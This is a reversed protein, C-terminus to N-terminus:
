FSSLGSFTNAIGAFAQHLGDMINQAPLYGALTGIASIAGIKLNRKSLFKYEQKKNKFYYDAGTAVLPITLVLPKIHELYEHLNLNSNFMHEFYLESGFVVAAGAVLSGASVALVELKKIKPEPKSNETKVEM